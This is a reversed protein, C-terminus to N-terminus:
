LSVDDKKFKKEEKLDEEEMLELESEKVKALGFRDDWILWKKGKCKRQVEFPGYWKRRRKASQNFLNPSRMKVIDGRDFKRRKPYSGEARALYEWVSIAGEDDSTITE